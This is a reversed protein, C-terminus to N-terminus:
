NFGQSILAKKKCKGAEIQLNENIEEEEEEEEEQYAQIL